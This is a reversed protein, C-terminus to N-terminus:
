GGGEDSVPESGVGDWRRLRVPGRDRPLILALPADVVRRGRWLREALMSRGRRHADFNALWKNATRQYHTGSWRWEREVQFIDAYQRVLHHSPMVGGTFFHQAIWDERCLRQIAVRVVVDPLPVREATGMIASVVSM